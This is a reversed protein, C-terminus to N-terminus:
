LKLLQFYCVVVLFSPHSPQLPRAALSRCGCLRGAPPLCPWTGDSTGRCGRQGSVSHWLHPSTANKTHMQRNCCLPYAGQATVTMKLWAVKTAAEELPLVGPTKEAAEQCRQSLRRLVCKTYLCASGRSPSPHFYATLLSSSFLEMEVFGGRAM